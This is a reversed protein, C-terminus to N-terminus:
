QQLTSLLLAGELLMMEIIIDNQGQQNIAM